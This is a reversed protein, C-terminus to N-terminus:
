WMSLSYFIKIKNNMLYFHNYYYKINIVYKYNYTGNSHIKPIIDNSM